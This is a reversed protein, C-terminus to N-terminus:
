REILRAPVGGVKRDSPVDHLVLSAARVVVRDGLTVGPGVAARLGLFADSGIRVDGALTVGPALLGHPGVVCDHDVSALTNVITNDGVRAGTMVVAGPCVLTGRGLQAGSAVFATPAVCPELLAPTQSLREFLRRRVANEGVGLYVRLAEGRELRTFLEDEALDGPESPDPVVFRVDHDALLSAIVRAHGGHGLVFAERNSM